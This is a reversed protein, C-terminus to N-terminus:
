WLLTYLSFCLLDPLSYFLAFLLTTFLMLQGPLHNQHPICNSGTEKGRWTVPILPTIFPCAFLHRNFTVRVICIHWGLFSRSPALVHVTDMFPHNTTALVTKQLTLRTGVKVRTQRDRRTVNLGVQTTRMLQLRKENHFCFPSPSLSLSFDMLGSWNKARSANMSCPAFFFAFLLLLARSLLNVSSSASSSSLPTLIFHWRVSLSYAPSLSLSLSLSLIFHSPYDTTWSLKSWKGTMSDVCVLVLM